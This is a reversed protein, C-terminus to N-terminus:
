RGENMLWDRIAQKSFFLRRGLRWHPITGAATMQYITQRAKKTFDMVWSIDVIDEDPSEKLQNVAESIADQLLPKILEVLLDKTTPNSGTITQM